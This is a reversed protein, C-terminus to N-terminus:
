KKGNQEYPIFITFESGKGSESKVNIHGDLALVIAQVYSLGLGFGKVDHIDGIQARYFKDFIRNQVEKNMGIGNDKVSLYVGQHNNSTSITIKPIQHNYKLANDILNSIINSFHHGDINVFPNEANLESIIQGKKNEISIKFHDITKQIIPHIDQINFQFNLKSKDILAIRLVSEVQKNMRKNEEKIVNLFQQIKGPNEIVKKNAISDVALSITAIPTKFEHTMNNIFDTKIQSIKKQKIIIAVSYTFIYLIILTFIISAVLWWSMSKLISRDKEPFWVILEYPKDIYAKNFLVSRYQNNQNNIDFQYSHIRTNTDSGSDYIVYQVPSSIGQNELETIIIHNFEDPKIFEEIPKEIANIENALNKVTTIVSYTTQGKEHKIFIDSKSTDKAIIDFKIASDGVEIRKIHEIKVKNGTSTSVSNYNSEALLKVKNKNKIKVEINNIFTDTADIEEEIIHINQKTQVKDSVANMVSYVSQNFQEEKIKFSLTIWYIQVIIIGFLALSMLGIIFTLQKKNM